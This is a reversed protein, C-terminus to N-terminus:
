LCGAVFLLGILLLNFVRLAVYSDELVLFPLAAPSATALVLCLMLM